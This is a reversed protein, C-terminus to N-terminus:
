SLLYRGPMGAVALMVLLIVSMVIATGLDPQKIVL